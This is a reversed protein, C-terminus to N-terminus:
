AAQEQEPEEVHGPPWRTPHTWGGKSDRPSARGTKKKLYGDWAHMEDSAPQIYVGSAAREKMREAKEKFGEFRRQSLYRCAHLMRYSDGQESAWVKFAPICATAAEQDEPTLKLWSQYAVSKSMGPDTPFASWFTEFEAAYSNRKRTVSRVINDEKKEEKELGSSSTLINYSTVGQSTVSNRETVAVSAAKEADLVNNESSKRERLRRMRLAAPTVDPTVNRTVTNRETVCMNRAATVDREIASVVLKLTEGGLGADILIAITDASIM